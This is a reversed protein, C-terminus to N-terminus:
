HRSPLIDLLIWSQSEMELYYRHEQKGETFSIIDDYFIELTCGDSLELSFYTFQEELRFKQWGSDAIVSTGNEGVGVHFKIGKAGRLLPLLSNNLGDLTVDQGESLIQRKESLSRRGRNKNRM